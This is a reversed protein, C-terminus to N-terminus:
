GTYPHQGHQRPESSLHIVTVTGDEQMKHITWENAPWKENAEDPTLHNTTGTLFKQM